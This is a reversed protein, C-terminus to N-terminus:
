KKQSGEEQTDLKCSVFKPPRDQRLDNVRQNIFSQTTINTMSRLIFTNQPCTKIPMTIAQTNSLLLKTTLKQQMSECIQQRCVTKLTLIRNGAHFNHLAPHIEPNSHINFINSEMYKM